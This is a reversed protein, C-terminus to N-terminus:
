SPFWKGFDARIFQKVGERGSLRVWLAGKERELRVDIDFFPCCLREDGVWEVVMQFTAPDSPFEFEYGDAVERITKHRAHLAPALENVLRKRAKPTLGTLDCAIPSEHKAALSSKGAGTGSQIPAPATMVALSIVAISLMLFPIRM